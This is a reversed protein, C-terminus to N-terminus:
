KKVTTTKFFTEDVSKTNPFNKWALEFIQRFAKAFEVSEVIVIQEAGILDIRVFDEGADISVNPAYLEEPLVKIDKLSSKGYKEMLTHLSDDYVTFGRVRINHTVCYQNWEDFVQHVEPSADRASAFFGVLEKGVLEKHKYALGQRMGNIGDFYLTRASKPQKKNKYLSLLEPLAKKATFFRDEAKQIFDEPPIAAFLQKKERPIQFALGKEVLEELIVYATSKKLGSKMAVGYASANGLQLLAIYVRAEKDTLGLPAIKKVL